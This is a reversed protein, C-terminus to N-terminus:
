CFTKSLNLFQRLQVDGMWDTEARFYITLQGHIISLGFEKKSERFPTRVSHALYIVQKSFNYCVSVYKSTLKRM